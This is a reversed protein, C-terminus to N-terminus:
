MASSVLNFVVSPVTIILTNRLYLFFPFYTLSVPYNSFMLQAPIWVPPLAFVEAESKLSTSFMWVLPFVFAVAGVLLVILALLRGAFSVARVVTKSGSKSASLPPAQALEAM